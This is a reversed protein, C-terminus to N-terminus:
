FWVFVVPVKCSSWYCNEIIYRETRRIILFTESFTTSFILVCMEYETVKKKRFVHRKHSLTSVNLLTPCAAIVIHRMRKAHQMILAIFVCVSYTIIKAKGSSFQNCSLAKMNRFVYVPQRTFMKCSSNVCKLCDINEVSYLYQLKYIILVWVRFVAIFSVRKNTYNPRHIALRNLRFMYGRNKSFM